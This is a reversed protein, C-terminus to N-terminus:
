TCFALSGCVPCKANKSTSVILTKCRDCRGSQNAGLRAAGEIMPENPYYATALVDIEAPESETHSAIGIIYVDNWFTGDEHGRYENRVETLEYFFRALDEDTLSRLYGIADSRRQMAM